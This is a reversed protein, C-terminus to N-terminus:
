NWTLSLEIDSKNYDINISDTTIEFDVISNETSTNQIEYLNGYLNNAILKNNKNNDNYADYHTISTTEHIPITTDTNIIMHNKSYNYLLRYYYIPRKWYEISGFYPRIDFIATNIGYDILTPKNSVEVSLINYEKVEDGEITFRHAYADIMYTISSPVYSVINEMDNNNFTINALNLIYSLRNIYKSRTYQTFKLVDISYIMDSFKYLLLWQSSLENHCLIIEETRNDRYSLARKLRDDADFNYIIYYLKMSPAQNKDKRTYVVYISFNKIINNINFRFFDSNFALNIFGRYETLDTSKLINIYNKIMSIFNDKENRLVVLGDTLNYKDYSLAVIKNKITEDMIEINAIEGVTDISHSLIETNINNTVFESSLFVDITSTANVSPEDYPKEKYLVDYLIQKNKKNFRLNLRRTYEKVNNIEFYCNHFTLMENWPDTYLLHKFIETDEHYPLGLTGTLNCLTINNCLVDYNFNNNLISESYLPNIYDVASSIDRYVYGTSTKIDDDRLEYENGYGDIIKIIDGYEVRLVFDQANNVNTFFKYNNEEEVTFVKYSENFIVIESSGDGVNMSGKCINYIVDTDAIKIDNISVDVHCIDNRRVINYKLVATNMDLNIIPIDHLMNLREGATITISYETFPITTKITKKGKLVEIITDFYFKDRNDITFNVYPSTISIDENFIFYSFRSMIIYDYQIFNFDKYKHTTSVLEIIDDTNATDIDEPDTIMEFTNDREYVRNITNMKTENMFTRYMVANIEETTMTNTKAFSGCNLLSTDMDYKYMLETNGIKGDVLEFNNIIVIGKEAKVPVITNPDILNNPSYTGDLFQKDVHNRYYESVIFKNLLQFNYYTEPINDDNTTNKYDRNGFLLDPYQNKSTFRNYTINKSVVNSTDVMKLLVNYIDRRGLNTSLPFPTLKNVVNHSSDSTLYLNCYKVRVRDRVYTTYEYHPQFEFDGNQNKIFYGPISLSGTMGSVVTRGSCNVGDFVVFVKGVQSLDTMYTNKNVILKSIKVRSYNNFIRELNKINLKSSMNKHLKMQDIEDLRAGTSDNVTDGFDVYALDFVLNNTNNVTSITKNNLAITDINVVYERAYDPNKDFVNNRNILAELLAYANDNINQLKVLKNYSMISAPTNNISILTEYHKAFDFTILQNRKPGEIQYMINPDHRTIAWETINKYFDIPLSTMKEDNKYENVYQIMCVLYYYKQFSMHVNRNKLPVLDLNVPFLVNFFAPANKYYNSLCTMFHLNFYENIYTMFIENHQLVRAESIIVNYLINLDIFKFKSVVNYFEENNEYFNGTMENVTFMLPEENGKKLEFNLGIIADKDMVRQSNTIIDRSNVSASVNSMNQKNIFSNM